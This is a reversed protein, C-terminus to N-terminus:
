RRHNHSSLITHLAEESLTENVSKDTEVTLAACALGYQCSKEINEGSFVGYLLGAVFADGAGTVDKVTSSFSSTTGIEGNISYYSVGKRGHTIIINNVGLLTIEKMAEETSLNPDIRFQKILSALEEQNCIIYDVGTLDDPMRNMKKASVPVIATLLHDKQRNLIISSIVEKPFNLDMVLIEASRIHNWKETLDDLSLNDYIEMNALAFLMEGTDGLVATYTGTTGKLQISPSIDVYPTVSDLVQEGMKDLGVATLLSTKLGLRGLNEAINRAVGGVSETVNVPNSDYWLFEGNVRAKRDVNGGGICLIGKEERLVYARGVIKGQKVLASIYGAVASRSLDLREALEQQSIFPNAKIMELIRHDKGKM